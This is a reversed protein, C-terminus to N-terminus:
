RAWALILHMLFSRVTMYAHIDNVVAGWFVVWILNLDSNAAVEDIIQVFEGYKRGVHDRSFNHPVTDDIGWSGFKTACVDFVHIKFSWKTSILVHSHGELKKQIVNDVV